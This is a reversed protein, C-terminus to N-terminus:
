FPCGNKVEKEFHKKFREFEKEFGNRIITAPNIGKSKLWAIKEMQSHSFRISQVVSKM